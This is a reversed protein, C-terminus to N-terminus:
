SLYKHFFIADGATDNLQYPQLGCKKYLEMAPNNALCELTLKCYEKERAFEEVHNLLALGVGM